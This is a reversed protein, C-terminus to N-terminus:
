SAAVTTSAPTSARRLRPRSRRWWWGRAPWRCCAPVCVGGAPVRPELVFGLSIVAVISLGSALMVAGFAGSADHRGVSRSVGIGLALVLPVTVPGTTVAGADWALGLIPVLGPRLSAALTGGVLLLALGVAFPKISLGLSFRIMAIGVAIGVGIGIALVLLQPARNLTYFLLPSSWAGVTSGAARLAAIAPEAYTAGVGLLVGFLVAGVIGGAVPLRLGVREGLPMLGLLLGELFCGLGLVVMGIGAALSVADAPPVGLILTQFGVLYVIIFAVSRVQEALRLRAYGAVM